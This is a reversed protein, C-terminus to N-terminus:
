RVTPQWTIAAFSFSFESQLVYYCWSVMSVQYQIVKNQAKMVLWYKVYADSNEGPKCTNQVQKFVLQLGIRLLSIESSRHIRTLTHTRRM